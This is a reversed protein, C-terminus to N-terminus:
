LTRILCKCDGFVDDAIVMIDDVIEISQIARPGSTFVGADLLQDVLTAYLTLSQVQATV